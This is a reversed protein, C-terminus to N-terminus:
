GASSTSACVETSQQRASCDKQILHGEPLLDLCTRKSINQTGSKVSYNFNGYWIQYILVNSMKPFNLVSTFFSKSCAKAREMVLRTHGLAKPTSGRVHYKICAALAETLKAAPKGQAEGDTGSMTCLVTRGRKSHPPGGPAFRSM